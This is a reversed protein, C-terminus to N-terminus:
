LPDRADGGDTDIALWLMVDHCRQCSTIHTYEEQTPEMGDQIEIMRLEDVCDPGADDGEHNAHPGTLNLGAGHRANGDDDLLADFLDSRLQRGDPLGNM